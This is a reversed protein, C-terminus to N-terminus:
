MENCQDIWVLSSLLRPVANAKMKPTFQSQRQPTVADNKSDKKMFYIVLKMSNMCQKHNLILSLLSIGLDGPFPWPWQMHVRETPIGNSSIAGVKEHLQWQTTHLANVWTLTVEARTTLSRRTLLASFTCCFVNYGASIQSFIYIIKNFRILQNHLFHDRHLNAM